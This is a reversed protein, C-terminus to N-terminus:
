HKRFHQHDPDGRPNEQHGSDAHHLQGRDVLGKIESRMNGQCGMSMVEVYVASGVTVTLAVVVAVVVVTVVVVIVPVVVVIVAVVVVMVAVVVVMVAVVVM